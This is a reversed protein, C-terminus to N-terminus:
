AITVYLRIMFDISIIESWIIKYFQKVADVASLADQLVMNTRKQLLLPFQEAASFHLHSTENWVLSYIEGHNCYVM